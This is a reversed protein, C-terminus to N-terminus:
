SFYSIGAKNQVAAPALRYYKATVEETHEDFPSTLVELLENLVSLDGAEAKTYAKALIWERPVFKPSTARMEAQREADARGDAALRQAYKSLWRSWEQAVAGTPAGNFFCPLLHDLMPATAGATGAAGDGDAAAAAAGTEVVQTAEAHTIAALQRFCITYDCGSKTM